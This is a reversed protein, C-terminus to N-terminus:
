DMAEIREQHHKLSAFSSLTCMGPFTQKWSPLNSTQRICKIYFIIVVEFALQLSDSEAPALFSVYDLAFAWHPVFIKCICHGFLYSVLSFFINDSRGQMVSVAPRGPNVQMGAGGSNAHEGQTLETSHEHRICVIKM